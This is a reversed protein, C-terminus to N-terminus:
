GPRAARGSGGARPSDAHRSLWERLVAFFEERVARELWPYHGCREWEHYELQPLFPTLSDRVMAGPHPDYAGHLMLVPQRIAALSAPYVRATQLRVM